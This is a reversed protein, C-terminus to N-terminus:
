ATAAAALVQQNGPPPTPTKSQDPPESHIRKTPPSGEDHDDEKRKRKNLYRQVDQETAWDVRFGLMSEWDESTLLDVDLKMDVDAATSFTHQTDDTEVAALDKHLASAVQQRNPLDL